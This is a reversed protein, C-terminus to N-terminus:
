AGGTEPAILMTWDAAAALRQIANLEDGASEVDIAECSAPFALPLRVDRTVLVDAFAGFDSAIAQIMATGEALLSAAPSGTCNWWGGGTVIEYLFIRMM